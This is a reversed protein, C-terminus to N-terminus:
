PVIDSAGWPPPPAPVPRDLDFVVRFLRGGPRSLEYVFRNDSLEVAWTNTTSVARGGAQFMAISEADVPFAIRLSSPAPARAVAADGGYMTLADPSGDAHRHDHKFRLGSPTRTFVWTRSRDEGVHFPVRVAGTGCERVHMVLPKGAFTSDTSAPVDIEVVGAYAQGCRRSLGALFADISAQLPLDAHGALAPSPVGAEALAQPPAPTSACGALLAVLLGGCAGRRLHRGSM